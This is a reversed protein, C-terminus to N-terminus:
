EGFAHFVLPAGNFRPMACIAELDLETLRFFETRVRTARYERHLWREFGQACNTEIYGVASGKQGLQKNAAAIRGKISTMGKAGTTSGIKYLDGFQVIYVFGPRCPGEEGFPGGYHHSGCERAAHTDHWRRGFVTEFLDNLM